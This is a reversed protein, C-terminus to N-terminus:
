VFNNRVASDQTNLNLETAFLDIDPRSFDGLAIPQTVNFPSLEPVDILSLPDCEGVLM